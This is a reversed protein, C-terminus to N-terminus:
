NKGPNKVNINVGPGPKRKGTVLASLEAKYSGLAEEPVGREKQAQIFRRLRLVRKRTRLSM